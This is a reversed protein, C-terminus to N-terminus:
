PEEFEFWERIELMVEKTIAYHIQEETPADNHKKARQLGKEVGSEVCMQILKYTDPKMAGGEGSDRRRM